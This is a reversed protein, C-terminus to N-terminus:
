RSTYAQSLNTTHVSPLLSAPSLPCSRVLSSYAHPALTVFPWITLILYGCWLTARSKHPKQKLHLFMSTPHVHQYLEWHPLFHPEIQIIHLQQLIFITYLHYSATPHLPCLLWKQDIAFRTSNYSYSSVVKYIDVILWMVTM